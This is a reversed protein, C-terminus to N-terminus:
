LKLKIWIIFKKKNIIKNIYDEQNVKYGDKTKHNTIGIIKRVDSEKSIAYKNKLKNIIYKIENDETTILIMM